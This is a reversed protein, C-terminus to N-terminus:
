PVPAVMPTDSGDTVELSSKPGKMMRAVGVSGTM